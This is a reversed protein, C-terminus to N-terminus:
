FLVGVCSCSCISSKNCTLMYGGAHFGFNGGLGTTALPRTSEAPPFDTKTNPDATSASGDASGSQGPGALWEALAKGFAEGPKELLEDQFRGTRDKIVRGIHDPSLELLLDFEYEIGKGQEPALGVRVPKQKGKGDSEISWETKSRMTAIVHGPYTLIANV